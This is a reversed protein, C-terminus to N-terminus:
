IPRSRRPRRTEAGTTWPGPSGRPRRRAPSALSSRRRRVSARSWAPRASRPTIAPSSGTTMMTATRSPPARLRAEDLRDALRRDADARRAEALTAAVRSALEARVPRGTMAEDAGEAARLARPWANTDEPGSRRAEDRASEARALADGIIRDAEALKAQRDLRFALFSGGGVAGALLVAAALAATLKRKSREAEARAAAEARAIEAKRLRDQVGALHGAVASAVGSADRPRDEPERALCRRALAVLEPDAKCADLRALADSIDAFEAKRMVEAGNRGTYAPSGTLVECLIAGLGFVDAREDTRDVEGRAQEPAMYAPTGMKSGASTAESEAGSRATQVLSVVTESETPASDSSEGDGLVKALGWDMVQVEGFAGVMVNPPKLDRHIVRKSHAYAVTQAIQHFIGVFRPLDDAPSSREKLLASLTRGKVLKMAFFPRDDPFVGLDYIPVIGPHQLQGGIQAEEFFRRLVEPNDRFRELLVKIALDRNLEPDRGRLVAGMGGRAIEDLIEYRGASATPGPPGAAAEPSDDPLRVAPATTGSPAVVAWTSPATGPPTTEDLNPTLDSM